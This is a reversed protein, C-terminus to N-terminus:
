VQNINTLPPKFICQTLIDPLVADRINSEYPMKICMLKNRHHLMSHECNYWRCPVLVVRHGDKLGECAACGDDTGIKAAYRFQDVVASIPQQEFRTVRALERASDLKQKCIGILRNLHASFTAPAYFHEVIGLLVILANDLDVLVRQM